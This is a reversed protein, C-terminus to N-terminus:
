TDIPMKTRDARTLGRRSEAVAPGGQKGTGSRHGTPGQEKEAAVTEVLWSALTATVTGVLAIGGIM